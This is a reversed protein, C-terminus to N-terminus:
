GKPSLLLVLIEFLFALGYIKRGSVPRRWKGGLSDVFDLFLLDVVGTELGNHGKRIVVADTGIKLYILLVFIRSGRDREFPGNREVITKKM